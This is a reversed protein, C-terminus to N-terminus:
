TRKFRLKFTYPSDPITVDNKGNVGGGSSKTVLEIFPTGVWTEGIHGLNPDFTPIYVPSSSGTIRANYNFEILSVPDYDKKFSYNYKIDFKPSGVMTGESYAFQTSPITSPFVGYYKSWFVITEGDEATIIYYVATAYDLIHNKIYSNKPHISGHYCGAIYDVWLKHLQYIHLNRDDTYSISFDGATKSEVNNRGYAIKWGGFTNGYTNTEIFEDSLSFSGAKNSLSLMFDHSMGNGHILQKVMNPSNKWAHHFVSDASLDGSLVTTGKSNKELINLDPRVFFVHGFGKQFVDDTTQIKFRNYSQTYKTFVAQPTAEYIGLSKHLKKIISNYSEGGVSMRNYVTSPDKVFVTGSTIKQSLANLSSGTVDITQAASVRKKKSNLYQSFYGQQSASLKPLSFANSYNKGWTRSSTKGTKVGPYLAYSGM